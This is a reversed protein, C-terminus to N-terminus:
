RKVEKEEVEDISLVDFNITESDLRKSEGNDLKEKADKADEAEVEFRVRQDQYVTIIFKKM